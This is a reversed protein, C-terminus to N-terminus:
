SWRPFARDPESATSAWVLGHAGNTWVLALTVLPLAALLALNRRTLWGDRGTYRVCFALWAAPVTCIGFYQVKAWFIKAGVGAAGSELAYGLAWVAVGAMLVALTRAGAAGRRTWAYLALVASLIGSSILILFYPSFQWGM